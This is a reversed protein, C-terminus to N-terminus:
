PKISQSCPSTRYFAPPIKRDIWRDMQALTGLSGPGSLRFDSPRPWLAQAQALVLPLAPRHLLMQVLPGTGSLSPLLLFIQLFPALLYASFSPLFGAHSYSLFNVLSSALFYSPLLLLFDPSFSALFNSCMSLKLPNRLCPSTVESIPMPTLTTMPMPSSM